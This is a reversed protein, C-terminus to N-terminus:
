TPDGEPTPQEAPIGLADAAAAGLAVRLKAHARSLRSRITGIPTSLATAAEAYTLQALDCLGVVAREHSNLTEIARALAPAMARADLDAATSALPDYQEAEPRLRWTMRQHRQISRLHKGAVHGATVLLWPRISGDVFRVRERSRWAELFVTAVLDEVGNYTGVRRACYVHVADVHRDFVEGFATTDGTRASPWLAEDTPSSTEITVVQLGRLTSNPEM